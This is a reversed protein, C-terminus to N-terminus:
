GRAGVPASLDRESAVSAVIASDVQKAGRAMGELLAQTALQNLVRPIGAAAEHLREIADPSFLPRGAGAVQLRHAFYARTDEPQLPVLDFAVGIRQTLARYTRHRLRERLEPQGVLVIAILNRDDLQFNTLLRIEEFTTKAPILHAEDVILLAARGSEDLELLRSHIQDLLDSAHFRPERVGLEAAEGTLLALEMEEVAFQLRELAEEYTDNLFLYRPDPTKRFPKERLGWYQEYM